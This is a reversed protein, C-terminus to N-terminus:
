PKEVGIGLFLLDWLEGADDDAQRPEGSITTAFAHFMVAQLVIGTIRRNQLGPRLVGASGAADLLGELLAVLPMFAAAAEKPHGALLQQAFEAVPAPGIRPPAGEPAPSCLRYYEGVFLHLREYPDDSGAVVEQLHQATAQV